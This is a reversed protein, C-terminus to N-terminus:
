GTLNSVEDENVHIKQNYYVEPMMKTVVEQDDFTSSTGSANDVNVEGVNNPIYKTVRGTNPKLQLLSEPANGLLEHVYSRYGNVFGKDGGHSERKGHTRRVFGYETLQRQFSEFNSHGYHKRLVKKELKKADKVVLKGIGALGGGSDLPENQRPVSWTIYKSSYPDQVMAYLGVTFANPQNYKKLANTQSSAASASFPVDVFYHDSEAVNGNQMAAYNKRRDSGGRRLQSGSSSSNEQTSGDLSNREMTTHNNRM